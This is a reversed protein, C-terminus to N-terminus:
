PAVQPIQKVQTNPRCSSAGFLSVSRHVYWSRFGSMGDELCIRKLLDDIHSKYEIPLLGMRILQYGADHFLSGRMFNKTDISPGSPGDWCYGKRALLLGDNQLKLYETEIDLGIISSDTEAPVALEYKYGSIPRYVIFKKM